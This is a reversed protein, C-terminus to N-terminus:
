GVFLLFGALEALGDVYGLEVERLEVFEGEFFDRGVIEGAVLGDLAVEGEDKGVGDLPVGDRGGDTGEADVFKLAELGDFDPAICFEGADVREEQAGAELGVVASEAVFFERLPEVLMM